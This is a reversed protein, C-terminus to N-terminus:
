TRVGFDKQQYVNTGYGVLANVRQKPKSFADANQLIPLCDGILLLIRSFLIHLGHCRWQFRGEAEMAQLLIPGVLM